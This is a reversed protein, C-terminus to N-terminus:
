KESLIVTTIYEAMNSQIFNGSKIKEDVSDLFGLIKMMGTISYRGITRSVAYFQKQSMGVKEATPAPSGQILLMNRFNNSLITLFGFISDDGIPVSYLLNGIQAVDRACIASTLDFITSNTNVGFVRDSLFENLIYKREQESFISVKQVENYSKYADNDVIKCLADIDKKDAGSCLNSIMEDIQWSELKPVQCVFEQSVEKGVKKCIIYVWKKDIGEISDIEDTYCVRISDGEEDDFMSFSSSEIHQIDCYTIPKTKIKSCEEVYQKPIFDNDSVFVVFEPPTGSEILKKVVEINM